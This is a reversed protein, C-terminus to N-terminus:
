CQSLDLSSIFMKLSNPMRAIAIRLALIIGLILPLEMLVALEQLSHSETIYYFRMSEYTPQLTAYGLMKYLIQLEENLRAELFRKLSNM